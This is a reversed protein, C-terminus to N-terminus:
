QDLSYLYISWPGGGLADVCWHWPPPPSSNPALHWIYNKLECRDPDAHNELQAVLDYHQGDSSVNGYAYTYRGTVWPGATNNIPDVPLAQAYKALAPIWMSGGSTGCAGGTSTYVWQGLGNGCSGASPYSNNDNYYQELLTVITKLDSKRRADRAKAFQTFPNITAVLGAALVGIIGIVVMLEILTFGKNKIRRTLSSPRGFRGAQRCAPFNLELRLKGQALDFPEFSLLRAAKLDKLM